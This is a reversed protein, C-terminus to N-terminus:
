RKLNELYPNVLNALEPFTNTFIEGRRRDIKAVENKFRDSHQEWKSTSKALVHLQKIMNMLQEVQAYMISSNNSLAKLKTESYELQQKAVEEKLDTPMTQFSFEEPGYIPNLQWAGRNGAIWPAVDNDILYDFFDTLSAYNFISVSTTISLETIPSRLLTRYNKMVENWKTGHRIYEAKDGFHDLSGYVQIRNKFRGWLDMLDKDKFKLKSLNTNYSLLIDTRGQRIMEELLEYHDETILPEGGAFYARQLNPIQEYLDRQIRPQDVPNKLGNYKIGEKADEIEWQSSYGSGCTRCKMNCLNSFRMDLYRMKFEELTGDENTNDLANPLYESYERLSTKRFSELTSQEQHYCTKCADPQEGNLMQLRIQSMAPSNMWDMIGDEQKGKIDLSKEPNTICCPQIHNDPSLHIHLWPLACLSTEKVAQLDINSLDIPKKM